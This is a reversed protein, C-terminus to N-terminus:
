WKFNRNCLCDSSNTIFNSNLNNAKVESSSILVLPYSLDTVTIPRKATYKFYLYFKREHKNLEFNSWKSEHSIYM